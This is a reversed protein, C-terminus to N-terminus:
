NDKERIERLATSLQGRHTAIHEIYHYLVWKYSYSKGSTKSVWNKELDQVTLNRLTELHRAKSEISLSKLGAITIAELEKREEEEKPYLYSAMNYEATLIHRFRKGVTAGKSDITKDLEHPKLQDLMQDLQKHEAEVMFELFEFPTM